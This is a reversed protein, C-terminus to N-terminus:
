HGAHGRGSLSRGPQVCTLVRYRVTSCSGNRSSSARAGKRGRDKPWGVRVPTLPIDANGIWAYVTARSREAPFSASGRDAVPVLGRTRQCGCRAGLVGASWRSVGKGEASCLLSKPRVLLKLRTVLACALM